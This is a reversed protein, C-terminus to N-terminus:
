NVHLLQAFDGSSGCVSANVSLRYDGSASAPIAFTLSNDGSISVAPQFVVASNTDTLSLTAGTLFRGSITIVTAPAGTSPAFSDIMPAHGPHVTTDSPNTFSGRENTIVFRDIGLAAGDPVLFSLAGDGPVM